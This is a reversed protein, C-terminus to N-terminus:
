PTGRGGDGIPLKVGGGQWASFEGAANLFGCDIQHAVGLNVLKFPGAGSTGVTIVANSAVQTGFPQTAPIRIVTSPDNSTFKVTNDESSRLLEVNPDAKVMAAGHEVQIDYTILM